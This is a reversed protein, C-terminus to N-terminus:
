INNKVILCNINFHYFKRDNIGFLEIMKTKENYRNIIFAASSRKIRVADGPKIISDKYEIKFETIYDDINSKRFM